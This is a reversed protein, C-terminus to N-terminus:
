EGYIGGEDVHSLYLALGIQAEDQNSFPGIKLDERTSFFWEGSICFFRAARTHGAGQEGERQQEKAQQVNVKHRHGLQGEKHDM